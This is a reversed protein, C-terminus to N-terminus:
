FPDEELLTKLKEVIKIVKRRAFRSSFKSVIRSLLHTPHISYTMKVRTSKETDPSVWNEVINIQGTLTQKLKLYEFPRVELTEEVITFIDTAYHYKHIAVAGPERSNGTHQEYNLFGDAWQKLNSPENLFYWVREVPQQIIVEHSFQKM